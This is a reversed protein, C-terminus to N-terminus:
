RLHRAVEDAVSSSIAGKGGVVTASRVRDAQEGLWREVEPAGGVEQGDILVLPAGARAAAPGAALADPFNRGTALWVADADMGETIGAAAVALSTQYRTAGALRTLVVEGGAHAVAAAALRPSVAGEGGVIEISRPRLEALLARVERPLEDPGTLLVPEARHAALASASLADPWARSAVDSTGLALVVRPLGGGGSRAHLERAVVASLGLADPAELRTVEGIGATQLDAVVRASLQDARGLV